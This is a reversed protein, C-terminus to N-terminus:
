HLKLSPRRERAPALPFAMQVAAASVVDGVDKLFSRRSFDLVDFCGMDSAVRELAKSRRPTLLVVEPSPDINLMLKPVAEIARFFQGGFRVDMLLVRPQYIYIERRLAKAGDTNESPEMIIGREGSFTGGVRWVLEYDSSVIVVM